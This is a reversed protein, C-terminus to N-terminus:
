GMVECLALLVATRFAQMPDDYGLQGFVIPTDPEVARLQLAIVQKAMGAHMIYVSKPWLVRVMIEACAETSEHLWIPLATSNGNDVMGKYLGFKQLLDDSLLKAAKRSLNQLEDQTM